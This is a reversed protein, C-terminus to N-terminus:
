LIEEERRELLTVDHVNSADWPQEKLCDKKFRVLAPRQIHHVMQANGPKADRSSHMSIGYTLYIYDETITISPDLIQFLPIFLHPMKDAFRLSMHEADGLYSWNKGDRSRAMSIRTRGNCNGRTFPADNVWVMYHTGPEYPDECFASSSKGCQMERITHLGEWTKGFDFSESYCVFRTDNRSNYLRLSGDACQIVKCEAYSLLEPHGVKEFVQVTSTESPTWTRGDDDSYFIVTDHQVTTLKTEPAVIKKSMAIPIFIRTKGDNDVCEVLSSTHYIMHCGPYDKSDAVQGIDEWHVLDDSSQVLTDKYLLVQIYKGNRLRLASQYAGDTDLGSYDAGDKVKQWSMGEDTSHYIGTKHVGEEDQYHVKTIGVLSGDPAVEIETSAGIHCEDIFTKVVGDIPETAYPTDAHFEHVHMDMRETFLGIRGFGVQRVGEACIEEKGDVTLTITDGNACIEIDYIQKPNLRIIQSTFRQSKCDYLAPVDELFWCKAANDYGVKIYATEPAHRLLVGCSGKDADYHMSIKAKICPDKEFIHLHTMSSEQGSPNSYYGDQVTWEGQYPKSSWYKTDTMSMDYCRDTRPKQPKVPAPQEQGTCQFDEIKAAREPHIWVGGWGFLFCQKAQSDDYTLLCKGNLYGKLVGKECEVKLTFPKHLGLDYEEAEIEVKNLTVLATTNKALFLTYKGTTPVSKDTLRLQYSGEFNVNIGVGLYFSPKTPVLTAEVSTTNGHFERYVHWGGFAREFKNQM